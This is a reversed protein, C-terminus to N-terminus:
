SKSKQPELMKKAFDYDPTMEDLFDVVDCFNENIITDQKVFRLIDCIGRHINIWREVPCSDSIEIVLKEDEFRVM